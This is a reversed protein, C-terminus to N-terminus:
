MPVMFPRKAGAKVQLFTQCVSQDRLCRGTTVRLLRKSRARVRLFINTVNESRYFVSQMHESWYIVNSVNESGCFVTTVHESFYLRKDLTRVRLSIDGQYLRVPQSPM